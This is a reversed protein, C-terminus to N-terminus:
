YFFRLGVELSARESEYKSDSFFVDATALTYNLSTDIAIDELIFFKCGLAFGLTGAASNEAADNNYYGFEVGVYPTVNEAAMFHYESFATIEYQTSDEMDFVSIRPGLELGEVTFYGYGLTLEKTDGAPGGWELSGSIQLEQTGETLPWMQASAFLSSIFLVFISSSIYRKM